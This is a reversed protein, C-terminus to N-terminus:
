KSYGLFSCIILQYYYHHHFLNTVASVFHFCIIFLCFSLLNHHQVSKTYLSFNVQAKDTDCIIYTFCLSLHSEYSLKYPCSYKNDMRVLSFTSYLSHYNQIISSNNYIRKLPYFFFM